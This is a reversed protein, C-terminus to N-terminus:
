NESSRIIENEALFVSRRQIRIHKPLINQIGDKVTQIDRPWFNRRPKMSESVRRCTQNIGPGPVQFECLLEQPQKVDVLIKKLSM